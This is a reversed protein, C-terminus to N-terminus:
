ICIDIFFNRIGTKADDNKTSSTPNMGVVACAAGRSIANSTPLPENPVGEVTFRPDKALLDPDVRALGFNNVFLEPLEGYV